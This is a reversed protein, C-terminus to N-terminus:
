SKDVTTVLTKSDTHKQKSGHYSLSSIKSPQKSEIEDGEGETFIWIIPLFTQNLHLPLVNSPTTLLSKFINTSMVWYHEAKTGSTLVARDSM